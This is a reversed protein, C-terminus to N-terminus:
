FGRFKTFLKESTFLNVFAIYSIAEEIQRYAYNSIRVQRTKGAGKKPTVM